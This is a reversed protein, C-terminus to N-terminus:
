AKKELESDSTFLQSWIFLRILMFVVEMKLDAFETYSKM